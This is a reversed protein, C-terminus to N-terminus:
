HVNRQPKCFPSVVNLVLSLLWLIVQHSRYECLQNQLGPWIYSLLHITTMYGYSLLYTMVLHSMPVKICIYTSVTCLRYWIRYMGKHYATPHLNEWLITQHQQYKYNNSFRQWSVSYAFTNILWGAFDDMHSYLQTELDTIYLVLSTYLKNIRLKINITWTYAIYYRTPITYM